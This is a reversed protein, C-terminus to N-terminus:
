LGNRRLFDAMDTWVEKRAIRGNVIDFRDIYRVGEFHKGSLLTGEVRGTAYVIQRQPSEIVDMHDYRYRAFSYRKAFWEFIAAVDSFSTPGPFVLEYGPALTRRAADSDGRHVADIFEHILRQAREIHETSM